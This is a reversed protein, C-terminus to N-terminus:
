WPTDLPLDDDDAMDLMFLGGLFDITQGANLYVGGTANLLWLEGGVRFRDVWLPREDQCCNIGVVSFESRHSPPNETGPGDVGYVALYLFDAESMALHRGFQEYLLEQMGIGIGAGIYNTAEVKAGLGFSNWTCGYKLDIVDTADHWRREFYNEPGSCASLLTAVLLLPLLTRSPTM